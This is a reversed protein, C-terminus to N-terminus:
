RIELGGFAVNGKIILRRSNDVEVTQQNKRNEEVGGFAATIEKIVKWDEPVQIEAGAFGVSVNLYTDGEPLTTKRLDLEVGGFAVTLEGGRFVPELFIDEAGGFAVKRTYIGDKGGFGETSSFITNKSNDGFIFILTNKGSFLGFVVCIGVLILLVPWYKAAFDSGIWPLADPYVNAIKPLLFFTSLTLFIFASFYNRNSLFAISFFVFIMPWSFIIQRFSADLWGLNFALLLSGALTVLLGFFLGAGKGLCGSNNTYTEM